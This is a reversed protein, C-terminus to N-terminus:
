MSLIKLLSISVPASMPLTASVPVHCPCLGHGHRKEMDMDTEVDMDNNMDIKKDVYGDM